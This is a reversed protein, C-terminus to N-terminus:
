ALKRVVSSIGVVSLLLVVLNFAAQLIPEYASEIWIDIASSAQLYFRFLAILALVSLFAFALWYAYRLVGTAPGDNGGPPREDPTKEPLEDVTEDPPEDDSVARAPTSASAGTEDPVGDSTEGDTEDTSESESSPSDADDGQDDTSRNARREETADDPDDTPTTDTM